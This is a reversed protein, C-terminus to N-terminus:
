TRLTRRARKSFAWCTNTSDLLHAVEEDGGGASEDPTEDHKGNEEADGPHEPKVRDDLFALAVDIDQEALHQGGDILGAQMDQRELEPGGREDDVPQAFAVHQVHAKVLFVQAALRHIGLLARRHANADPMLHEDTIRHGIQELVAVRAAREGGVDAVGGHAAEAVHRQAGHHDVAVCHAVVDAVLHGRLGM